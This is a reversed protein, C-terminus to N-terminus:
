TERYAVIGPGNAAEAAFDRMKTLTVTLSAADRRGISASMAQWTRVAAATDSINALARVFADPVRIISRNADLRFVLLPEYMVGIASGLAAIEEEGAEFSLVPRDGEEENPM